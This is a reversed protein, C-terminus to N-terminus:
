PVRETAETRRLEVEEAGGERLKGAGISWFTFVIIMIINM